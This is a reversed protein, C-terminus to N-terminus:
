YSFCLHLQARREPRNQISNKETQEFWTRTLFYQAHKCIFPLQVNLMSSKRYISELDVDSQSTTWCPRQDCEQPKSNSHKSSYQGSLIVLVQQLFRLMTFAGFGHKCLPRKQVSQHWMGMLRIPGRNMARCSNHWIVCKCWDLNWTENIQKELDHQRARGRINFSNRAGVCQNTSFWWKSQRNLQIGTRLSISGWTMQLKM